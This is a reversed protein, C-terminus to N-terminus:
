FIFNSNQGHIWTEAAAIVETDSSFHRGILQKKLGSFLHYDSPALDLSYHPHEVYQLGLYALIKKNALARYTLANDHL